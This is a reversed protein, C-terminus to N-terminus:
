SESVVRNERDNALAYAVAQELPMAPGEAWAAAWTATDLHARAQAVTQEYAGREVPPLPAGLAERLAQAAGM